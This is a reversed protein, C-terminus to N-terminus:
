NLPIELVILQSSTNWSRWIKLSQLIRVNISLEGGDIIQAVVVVAAVVVIAEVVVIAAVVVVVTAVLVFVTAVLVFVTAVVVFATAVVVFVTAAPDEASIAEAACARKPANARSNM